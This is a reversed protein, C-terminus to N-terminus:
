KEESTIKQLNEKKLRKKATPYTHTPKCPPV